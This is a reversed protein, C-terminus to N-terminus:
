LHLIFKDQNKYFVLLGSFFLVVSFGISYLMVPVNLANGYVADRFNEIVSYLPNLRFLWRNNDGVVTEVKYFIACAYMILTLAVGWLYELDRFFVALTSLWLGAGMTLVLVVTLPILGELLHWTPMVDCYVAVGALVVLSILFQVYGSLVSAFPYMYKPVYVKKIMGANARVSKLAGRTTNAFFSYLLRGTLIYVPFDKTNHYLKSFVLVLVMMTLLPELLTWLVGMYSSRYKLKIDKKVLQFLLYQYKKFTLFLNKM